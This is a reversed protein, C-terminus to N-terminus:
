INGSGLALLMEELMIQSEYPCVNPDNYELPQDKLKVQNVGLTCVNYNITCGMGDLDRLVGELDESSINERTCWTEMVCLLRLLYREERKCSSFAGELERLARAKVEEEAEERTPAMRLHLWQRFAMAGAEEKPKGRVISSGSDSAFLFFLINTAQTFDKSFMRTLAELLTEHFYAEGGGESTTLADEIESLISQISEQSSFANRKLLNELLFDGVRESANSKSFLAFFALSLMAYSQPIGAKTEFDVLSKHVSAEVQDVMVRKGVIESCFGLLTGEQPLGLRFKNVLQLLHSLCAYCQSLLLFSSENGKQGELLCTLLYDQELSKVADCFVLVKSFHIIGSGNETFLPQQLILNLLSIGQYHLITSSSALLLDIVELFYGLYYNMQVASNTEKVVKKMLVLAVSTYVVDNSRLGKQARARLKRGLKSLKDDNYKAYEVTKKVVSAHKLTLPWDEDELISALVEDDAKNFGSLNTFDAFVQKTYTKYRKTPVISSAAWGCCGFFPANMTGWESLDRGGEGREDREELHNAGM